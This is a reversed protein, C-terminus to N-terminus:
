KKNIIDENTTEIQINTDVAFLFWRQGVCLLHFIIYTCYFYSQALFQGKLYVM